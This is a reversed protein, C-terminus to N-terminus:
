SFPFPIDTRKTFSLLPNSAEGVFGIRAVVVVAVLIVAFEAISPPLMVSSPAVCTLALPKTYPVVVPADVNLTVTPEPPPVNVLV